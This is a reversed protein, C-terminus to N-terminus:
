FSGLSSLPPVPPPLFVIRKGERGCGGEMLVPFKRVASYYNVQPLYLSFTELRIYHKCLVNKDPRARASPRGKGSHM